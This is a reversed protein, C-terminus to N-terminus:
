FLYATVPVDNPVIAFGPSKPAGDKEKLLAGVDLYSSACCFFVDGEKAPVSPDDRRFRCCPISSIWPKSPTKEDVCSVAGHQAPRLYLGLIDAAKREFEPDNRAL